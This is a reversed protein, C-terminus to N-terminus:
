RMKHPCRNSYGEKAAINYDKQTTRWKRGSVDFKRLGIRRINM